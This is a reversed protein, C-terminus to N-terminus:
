GWFTLYTKSKKEQNEEELIIEELKQNYRSGLATMENIHLVYNFDIRIVNDTENYLDLSRKTTLLDDITEYRGLLFTYNM